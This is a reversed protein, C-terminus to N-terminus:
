NAGRQRFMVEDSKLLDRALMSDWDTYRPPQLDLDQVAEGARVEAHWNDFWEEVKPTADGNKVVIFQVLEPALRSPVIRARIQSVGRKVEGNAGLRQFKDQLKRILQTLSDAYAVRSVRERLRVALKDYGDEDAFAEVRDRGVLWGKEVPVEIRLDAVWYFHQDLDPPKLKALDLRTDNELERRFDDGLNDPDLPYVPCIQFWPRRPEHDSEDLDCSQTVVLGYPPGEDDNLLVVDAGGDVPLASTADWLAFRPDGLYFFPPNAFLHGQRLPATTTGIEDPWPRLIGDDIM